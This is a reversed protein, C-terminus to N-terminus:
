KNVHNACVEKFFIDLALYGFTWFRELALYGFKWFRELALYGFRWFRELALYGFDLVMYSMKMQM